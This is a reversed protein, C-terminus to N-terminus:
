SIEWFDTISDKLQEELFFKLKEKVQVEIQRVREKSIKLRESLEHLTLKEENLLRERFITAQKQNLTEEFAEFSAQLLQKKEKDLILNEANLDNKSLISEMGNKDDSASSDMSLDAGGLRQEMEVVDSERVDLKEALLKTTPFFGERELKEKEKKLNFFLKRQAQTTGLKVMRWNAMLYRIIYAKIWWVAYSPLRVEKYPDFKKVAEMLGLNGEQILDLLNLTAQKYSRAIKVVLWLNSSVLKYAAKLDKNDKYKLAIEKEEERTLPAFQKIERLYATLADFPLIDKSASSTSSKKPSYITAAGDVIEIVEQKKKKPKKLGKKKLSM